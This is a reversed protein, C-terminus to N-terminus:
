PAIGASVSSVVDFHRTYRKGFPFHITVDYEAHLAANEDELYVDLGNVEPTIGREEGIREKVQTVVKKEIKTQAELTMMNIGSAQSAGQDVIEGIKYATWFMPGLKWGAYGAALALILLSVSVLNVRRPEKYNYSM